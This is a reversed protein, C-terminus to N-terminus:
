LSSIDVVAVSSGERPGGVDINTVLLAPEGDLVNPYCVNFDAPMAAVNEGEVQIVHHASDRTFAHIEGVRPNSAFVTGRRSVGVGDLIGLGSYIPDPLRGRAFDDGAFRYVGGNVPDHLSCSVAWVADEMPSSTVGNVFGPMVIRQVGTADAQADEAALADLADHPIRYVASDVPPPGSAVPNSNPIDGVFLNGHADIALGNPQDLGNFRRGIASDDWLPIHGRREGTMPDFALARPRILAADTILHRSQADMIPRGGEAIFATGVPFRGTGRGLVDIGLTGTLGDVLRREVLDVRDRGTIRAQSIFAEGQLYVLGAGDRYEPVGVIMTCNGFVFTEGDACLEASEPNTCGDITGMLRGQFPTPESM